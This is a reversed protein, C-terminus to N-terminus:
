LGRQDKAQELKMGPLQLADLRSQRELGAKKLGFEAGQMAADGRSEFGRRFQDGIRLLTNSVQSM